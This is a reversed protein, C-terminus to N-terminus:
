YNWCGRFSVMTWHTKGVFIEVYVDSRYCGAEASRCAKRQGAVKSRPPPGIFWWRGAHSPFFHWPKQNFFWRILWNWFPYSMFLCSHVHYLIIYFLVFHILHFSNPQRFLFLLGQVTQLAWAFTIGQLVGTANASRQGLLKGDLPDSLFVCPVCWNGWLDCNKNSWLKVM